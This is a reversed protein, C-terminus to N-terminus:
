ARPAGAPLAIKGIIAGAAAGQIVQDIVTPLWYSPPFGFWNFNPLWNALAGFLGIFAGLSALGAWGRVATKQMVSALVLIILLNYVFNAAFYSVMPRRVSGPRIVAHMFPGADSAKMWEDQSKHSGDPNAKQPVIYVGTETVSSKLAAVIARDDKMEKPSHWGFVTWSLSGYVFWFVAAVLSAIFLRKMAGIM